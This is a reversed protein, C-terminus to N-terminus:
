YIFYKYNQKLRNIEVTEIENLDIMAPINLNESKKLIDEIEKELNYFDCYRNFKEISILIFKIYKISNRIRIKYKLEIYKVIDMDKELFKSIVEIKEYM